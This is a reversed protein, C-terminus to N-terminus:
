AGVNTMTELSGSLHHAPISQAQAKSFMKKCGLGEADTGAPNVLQPLGAVVRHGRKKVFSPTGSLWLTYAACGQSISGGYAGTFSFFTFSPVTVMM